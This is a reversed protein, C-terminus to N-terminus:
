KKWDVRSFYLIVYTHRKPLSTLLIHFVISFVRIELYILYTMESLGSFLGTWGMHIYRQAPLFILSSKGEKHTNIESVETWQAVISKM